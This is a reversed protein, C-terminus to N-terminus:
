ESGSPVGAFLPVKGPQDFGEGLFANSVLFSDMEDTSQEPVKKPGM